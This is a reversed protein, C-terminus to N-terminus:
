RNAQAKDWVSSFVKEDIEEPEFQPDSAIEAVEPVPFDGLFTPGTKSARDAYTTRGDVFVEVKRVGYRDADLESYMLVPDTATSHLWRVKIYKVKGM